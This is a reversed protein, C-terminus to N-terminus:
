ENRDEDSPKPLEKLKFSRLLELAGPPPRSHGLQQVPAPAKPSPLLGSKQAREILMMREGHADGFREPHNGGSIFNKPMRQDPDPHAKASEVRANYADIFARRAAVMEGDDILSQAVALAAASVQNLIGSDSELKPVTAWAEDASMWLAGSRKEIQFKIDSPVPTYVGDAAHADIAARIEELTYGCLTRYFIAKSSASIIKAAPTKGMLDYVEDLMLFFEDIDNETM